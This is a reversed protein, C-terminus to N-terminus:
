KSLTIKALAMANAVVEAGKPDLMLAALDLFMQEGLDNNGWLTSVRKTEFVRVPCNYLVAKTQRGDLVEKSQKTSGGQTEYCLEVTDAWTSYNKSKRFHVNYKNPTGKVVLYEAIMVELNTAQANTIKATKKM